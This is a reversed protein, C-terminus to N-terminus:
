PDCSLPRPDCAVLPRTGTRSGSGRHLAGRLRPLSPPHIEQQMGCVTVRAVTGIASALEARDPV